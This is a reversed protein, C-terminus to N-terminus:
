YAITGLSSDRGIYMRTAGEFLLFQNAHIHEDVVGVRVRVCERRFQATDTAVANLEVQDAIAPLFYPGVAQRFGKAAIVPAAAEQRFFLAARNRELLHDIQQLAHVAGAKIEDLRLM